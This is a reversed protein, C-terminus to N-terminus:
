KEAVNCYINGPLHSRAGMKLFTIRPLTPNEQNSIIQTILLHQNFDSALNGDM